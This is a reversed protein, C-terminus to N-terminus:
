LSGLKQSKMPNALLFCFFSCFPTFNAHTSYTALQLWGFSPTKFTQKNVTIRESIKTEANMFLMCGGSSMVSYKFEMGPAFLIKKTSDYTSSSTWPHKGLRDFGGVPKSLFYNKLYNIIDEDTNSIVVIRNFDPEYIEHTPNMSQVDIHTVGEPIDYIGMYLGSYDSSGVLLNSAVGASNYRRIITAAGSMQACIFVKRMGITEIKATRNYTGSTGPETFVEDFYAVLGGSELAKVRKDLNASLQVANTIEIEDVLAIKISFNLALDPTYSAHTPGICTVCAFKANIPVKVVGSPAVHGGSM